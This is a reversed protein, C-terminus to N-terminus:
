LRWLIRVKAAAQTSYFFLQNLNRMVPLPLDTAPLPYGNADVASSAGVYVTATNSTDPIVLCSKCPINSGQGAGGSLTVVATGFTKSAISNDYLEIGM